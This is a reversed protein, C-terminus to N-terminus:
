NMPKQKSGWDRIYIHINIKFIKVIKLIYKKFKIKIKLKQM